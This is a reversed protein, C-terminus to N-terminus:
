KIMLLNEGRVQFGHHRHLGGSFGQEGGGPVPWLLSPSTGCGHLDGAPHPPSPQPWVLHVDRHCVWNNRPWLEVQASASVM